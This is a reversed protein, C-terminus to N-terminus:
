DAAVRNCLEGERGHHYARAAAIRITPVLAADNGRARLADSRACFSLRM